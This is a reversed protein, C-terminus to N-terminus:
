SALRRSPTVRAAALAAPTQCHSARGPYLAAVSLDFLRPARVGANTYRSGTGTTPSSTTHLSQGYGGYREREQPTEREGLVRDPDPHVQFQRAAHGHGAVVGQVADLDGEFLLGLQQPAGDLEGDAVVSAGDLPRHGAGVAEDVLADHGHEARVRGAVRDRGGLHQLG